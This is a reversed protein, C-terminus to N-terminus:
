IIIEVCISNTAYPSPDMLGDGLGLPGVVGLGVLWGVSWAGSGVLYGVLACAHAITRV